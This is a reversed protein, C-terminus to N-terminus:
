RKYAGFFDGVERGRYGRGACCLEMSQFIFAINFVWMDVGKGNPM